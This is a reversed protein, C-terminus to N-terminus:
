PRRRQGHAPGLGTERVAPVHQRLPLRAPRSNVVIRVMKEFGHQTGAGVLCLRYVQKAQRWLDASHDKM